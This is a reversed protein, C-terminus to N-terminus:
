SVPQVRSARRKQMEAHLCGCSRTRGSLIHQRRIIKIQGCRCQCRCRAHPLITLITLRGFVQGVLEDQEPPLDDIHPWQNPHIHKGDILMVGTAALQRIVAKAAKLERRSAGNRQVDPQKLAHKFRSGFGTATEKLEALWSRRAKDVQILWEKTAGPAWITYRPNVYVAGVLPLEQGTQRPYRFLAFALQAIDWENGPSPGLRGAMLRNLTNWALDNMDPVYVSIQVKGAYLQRLLQPPEPQPVPIATM